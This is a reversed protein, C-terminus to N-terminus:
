KELFIIAGALYVIAGLLEHVAKDNEGRDIMGQAEETKKDVQGLIFGIGRRDAITQMPQEHFPRDNAHREAGKTVAAQDYARELVNRLKEYGPVDVDYGARRHRPTGRLEDQENIIEFLPESVQSQGLDSLKGAARAALERPVVMVQEDNQNV